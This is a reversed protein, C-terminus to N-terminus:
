RLSAVREYSQGTDQTIGDFPYLRHM